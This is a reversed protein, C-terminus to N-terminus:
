RPNRGGTQEGDEMEPDPLFAPIRPAGGGGGSGTRGGGGRGGTQEGAYTPTSMTALVGLMAILFLVLGSRKTAGLISKAERRARSRMQDITNRAVEGSQAKNIAEDSAEDAAGLAVAARHADGAEPWTAALTQRVRVNVKNRLADLTAQVEDRSEFDIPSDSVASLRETRSMGQLLKTQAAKRRWHKRSLATYAWRALLRSQKALREIKAEPTPLEHVLPYGGERCMRWVRDDVWAAMDEVSMQNDTLSRSYARCAREVAPQVRKAYLTWFIEQERESMPTRVEGAESGHGEIEGESFVTDSGTIGSSDGIGGHSTVYKDV